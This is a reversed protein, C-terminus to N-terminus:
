ITPCVQDWHARENFRLLWNNKDIELM